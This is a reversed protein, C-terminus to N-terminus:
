GADAGGLRMHRMLLANIKRVDFREAALEHARRGMRVALEPDGIFRCMAEALKPGDRVPVLYGTEGDIVTERCGPADTTITARGTAMAELVTRPLGERYSPLVFVTCGSLYPRVDDTQGLYEIAGEGEWERVDERSIGSPHDDFPGLLQFRVDGHRQRVRRAAEVYDLIGKDRLLRAILLFTVPATPPPSSAFHDLDVGSGPILQVVSPNGVVDADIIQDADTRNYVFVAKAGRLATRFLATTLARVLKMVLSPDDGTFIHGLGTILAFRHPVGALRGALCGYIVPKVTYPLIVDPRLERFRRWLSLLTRLDAFPNLGTRAMPVQLLPVGIDCLTREVEADHEPAIAIVEHGARVMGEILRLRFNTLSYALSAIVVVRQLCAREHPQQPTENPGTATM